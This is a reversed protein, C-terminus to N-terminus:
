FASAGRVRTTMRESNVGVGYRDRMVSRIVDEKPGIIRKVWKTLLAVNMTNLHPVGLGGQDTLTCIDDWALLALGRGEKSGRWFFRWKLGSLRQEITTPVKFVSLYFTPIASLVSRLLVLRGGKSLVKAEWGELRKEVKGVVPQWDAVRLQGASLPLGLYRMPLAGVPTGLAHSCLSEEERSLRFGKFESKERNLCLRSYDAFVELLASLNKAEEMSGEIFFMTDDAYQLLPIGLPQSHIQFGKLSGRACAQAVSRYLVNEVLVFLMPALPCGQRIGRQPRIWERTPRGNLLVPFSHSTM